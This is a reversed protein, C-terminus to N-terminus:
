DGKMMSEFRTKADEATTAIVPSTGLIQLWTPNPINNDKMLGMQQSSVIFFLDPDQDKDIVIGHGKKLAMLLITDSQGLEAFIARVQSYRKSVINYGILDLTNNRNM